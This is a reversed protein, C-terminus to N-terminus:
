LRGEIYNEVWQPVGQYPLLGLDYARDFSYPEAWCDQLEEPMLYGARFAIIIAQRRAAALTTAEVTRTSNRGPGGIIWRKMVPVMGDGRRRHACAMDGVYYARRCQRHGQRRLETLWSLRVLERKTKTTAM